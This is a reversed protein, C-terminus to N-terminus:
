KDQLRLRFTKIEYPRLDFTFANDQV